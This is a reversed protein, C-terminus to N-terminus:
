GSSQWLALMNAAPKLGKLLGKAVMSRLRNHERLLEAKEDANLGTSLVHCNPIVPPPAVPQEEDAGWLHNGTVFAAVLAFALQLKSLDTLMRSPPRHM